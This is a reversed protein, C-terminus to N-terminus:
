KQKAGLYITFPSNLARIRIAYGHGFRRPNSYVDFSTRAPDALRVWVLAGNNSYGRSDSTRYETLSSQGFRLLHLYDPSLGCEISLNTLTQPLEYTVELENKARFLRFIKRLGYASSKARKNVLFAEAKDGNSETVTAKHRDDEHGIDSLAGPHNAPTEMYKNLEEQWNWDDSPNGIVMRGQTGGVDFLYVLRGGYRPSVVAFLVDNKLILEEHGDNDIDSLYAYAKANKNKMWHAAEAIVAAHRSHSAIAKIWPSPEDGPGSDGHAGYSPTHWATEWTSALLHKWATELM